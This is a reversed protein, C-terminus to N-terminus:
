SKGTFCRWNYNHIYNNHSQRILKNVKSRQQKYAEHLRSKNTKNALKHLKDKKRMEKKIKHTIWPLNSKNKSMKTPIFKEMAKTLSLKFDKWNEEVTRSPANLLFSDAYETLYNELSTNDAKKYQWIKRPPKQHIKPSVSLSFMVIDHDSIGPCSSLDSIINPNTTLVLDLIANSSPRTIFTVLQSLGFDDLLEFFYDKVNVNKGDLNKYNEWDIGPLNFDGGLVLLPISKKGEYLKSLSDKLATLPVISTRPCYFSCLLLEKSGAFKLSGWVLEGDSDLEPHDQVVLSDKIALFVGGGNTNRDKRYVTYNSPFVSYTAM